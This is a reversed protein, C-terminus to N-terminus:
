ILNEVYRDIPMRILDVIMCAVMVVIVYAAIVAFLYWREGYLSIDFFNGILTRMAGELLYVAVVHKAIGNIIASQFRMRKFSMFIAVSSLVIIASCDRAFPACVGTGGRLMTLVMNLVFGVLVVVVGILPFGIRMGTKVGIGKEDNGYLRIYRGIYYMLLMNALGKGGDNMVHFQIITPVVSFVVFMLALLKQFDKKSLKDPAKNIFESFVLMLMYCTIYWYKGSAVPIFAMIIDKIAWSNSVIGIVVVSIVSYFLTESELRLYKRASFRIGFYGSILVFISIGTNFLSNIFVGYVLNVGTATGYFSGFTHMSVIGFICLIRLLEFNSDRVLATGGFSYNPKRM